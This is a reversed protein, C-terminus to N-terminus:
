QPLKDPTAPCPLGIHTLYVRSTGDSCSYSCMKRKPDVDPDVFQGSFWCNVKLNCISRGPGPAPAPRPGAAPMPSPSPGCVGYAECLKYLQYVDYVALVADVGILGGAAVTSGGGVAAGGAAAESGAAGGGAAVPVGPDITPAPTEVPPAPSETTPASPPELVTQTMGTPDIFTLPNNSGYRYFNVSNAAFGLPDESRFRGIPLNYYRARYYYLDAETDFERGGYRFFSTISGSSGTQNGFSDYTYAPPADM